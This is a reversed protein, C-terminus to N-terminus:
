SSFLQSFSSLSLCLNGEIFCLLSVLLCNNTSDLFNHFYPTFTSSRYNIIVEIILKLDLSKLKNSLIQHNIFRSLVHPDSGQLPSPGTEWFTLDTMDIVQTSQSVRSVCPGSDKM